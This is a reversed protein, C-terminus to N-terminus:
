IVRNDATLADWLKAADKPAHYLEFGDEGTYGTRSIICPVGAVEGTTFRYYGIPDLPTKTLPQLVEQAKPGQLALLATQDSVDTLKVDLNGAFRKIHAWDKAINSANVVLMFKDAMRYVLCDDVIGGTDHLFASYQVQGVALAAPDNCTVHAVFALADKGRVEFEGMHSVDFLGAAQRVANHEATIGTPYQVPMEFGAFPVIKAGAKVHMDYFPTRKLADSMSGRTPQATAESVRPFSAAFEAMEELRRLKESFPLAYYEQHQRRRSGEWTTLSWDIEEEAM